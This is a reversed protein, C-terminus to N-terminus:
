LLPEQTDQDSNAEVLKTDHLSPGSSRSEPSSIKATANLRTEEDGPPRPELGPGEGDEVFHLKNTICYTVPYQPGHLKGRVKQGGFDWSRFNLVLNQVLNCPQGCFNGSTPNVMSM